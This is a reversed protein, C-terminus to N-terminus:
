QPRRRVIIKKGFRAEAAARVKAAKGFDLSANYQRSLCRSYNSYVDATGLTWWSGVGNNGDYLSGLGTVVAMLKHAM